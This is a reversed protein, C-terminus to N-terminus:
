KGGGVGVVGGMSVGMIVVVVVVVGMIDEMM